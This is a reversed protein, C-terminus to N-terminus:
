FLVRAVLSCDLCARQNNQKEHVLTGSFASTDLSAVVKSPFSLRQQKSTYIDLVYLSRSFPSFDLYSNNHSTFILKYGRSM